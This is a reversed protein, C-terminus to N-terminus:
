LSFSNSLTTMVSCGRVRVGLEDGPETNGVKDSQSMIYPKLLM